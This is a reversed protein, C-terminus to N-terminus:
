INLINGYVDIVHEINYSYNYLTLYGGANIVLERLVDKDEVGYEDYCSVRDYEDLGIMGELTDYAMILGPMSIVRGSERHIFDFFKGRKAWFYQSKNQRLGYESYGRKGIILTNNNCDYLTINDTDKYLKCYGDEMVLSSFEFQSLYGAEDMQFLAYRDKIKLVVVNSSLPIVEEYVPPLIINGNMSIGYYKKRQIVDMGYANRVSCAEVFFQNKDKNIREEILNKIENDIKEM